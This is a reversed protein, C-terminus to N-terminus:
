VSFIDIINTAVFLQNLGPVRSHIDSFSNVMALIDTMRCQLAISAGLFCGCIVVM